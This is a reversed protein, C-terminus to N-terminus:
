PADPSIPPLDEREPNDATVDDAVFAVVTAVGVLAVTAGVPGSLWGLFAAKAPALSTEGAGPLALAIESSQGAQATVAASALPAGSADFMILLYAGAPLDALRFRGKTDTAAQALPQEAGKQFLQVSVDAVPAEFDPTFVRGRITSSETPAAFVVLSGMSLALTLLVALTRRSKTTM